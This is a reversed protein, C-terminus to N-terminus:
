GRAGIKPEAFVRWNWRALKLRTAEYAPVEDRGAYAARKGRRIGMGWRQRGGTFADDANYAASCLM